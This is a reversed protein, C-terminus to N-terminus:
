PSSESLPVTRSDRAAISARHSSAIILDLSDFPEKTPPSSRSLRKAKVAVSTRHSLMCCVSMTNASTVKGDIAAVTRPMTQKSVIKIRIACPIVTVERYITKPGPGLILSLALLKADVLICHLELVGALPLLQRAAFSKM